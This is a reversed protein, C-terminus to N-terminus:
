LPPKRSGTTSIVWLASPPLTLRGSWIHILSLTLESDNRSVTFMERSLDLSGDTEFIDRYTVYQFISDLDKQFQEQFQDSDDYNRDLLWSIGSGIQSHLYIVSIGAVALTLFIIHLLVAINKKIQLSYDKLKM